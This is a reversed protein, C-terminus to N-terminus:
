SYIRIAKHCKVCIWFHTMGEDGSRTQKSKLIMKYGCRPCKKEGENKGYVKEYYEDDKILTKDLSHDYTKKLTFAEDAKGGIEKKYGCTRCTLFKKGTEKDKKPYLIADCEPCYEM